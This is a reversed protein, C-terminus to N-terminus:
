KLWVCSIPLSIAWPIDGKRALPILFYAICDLVAFLFASTAAMLEPERSATFSITDKFYMGISELEFMSM